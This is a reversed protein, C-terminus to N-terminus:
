ERGKIKTVPVTFAGSWYKTPIPVAGTNVPTAAFDRLAIEADGSVRIAWDAGSLTSPPEAHWSIPVWADIDEYHGLGRWHNHTGEGVTEGNRLVEIRYGYALDLGARSDVYRDSIIVGTHGGRRVLRPEVHERVARDISPTSHPTLVDHLSGGIKSALTKTGRWLRRDGNWIEIDVTLPGEPVSRGLSCLGHPAQCADIFDSPTNTGSHLRVRAFAWGSERAEPVGIAWVVIEVGSPWRDRTWVIQDLEKPFAAYVRDFVHQVHADSLAGRYRRTALENDLLGSSQSLYPSRIPAIRVLVWSPIFEPWRNSRAIPWAATCLGAVVALLAVAALKWRRRPRHTHSEAGARHGCEPCTLVTTGALDYWCRPCRRRGRARDGRLAWVLIVLAGLAVLAGAVVLILNLWPPPNV